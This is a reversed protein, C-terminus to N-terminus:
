TDFRASLQMQRETSGQFREKVKRQICSWFRRLALVHSKFRMTCLYLPELSDLGGQPSYLGACACWAKKEKKKKKKGKSLEKKKKKEKPAHAGLFVFTPFTVLCDNLRM